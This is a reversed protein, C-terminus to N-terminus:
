TTPSRDRSRAARQTVLAIVEDRQAHTTLLLLDGERAWDLAARVAELESDYRALAEAPAGCRRLEAEIMEPIVGPERGRRYIDMEKIFVRDPRMAWAARAFERIADDDRDGAQGIVLARRRAPLGSAMRSLAALGHPNHAFDVLATVGGLDWLNSRGPNSAPNSQFQLLGGRIAVPSLGLAMAVGIAGLANELNHRAAGGFAIPIEAATAIERRTAGRAFVLAGDELLCADGGRERHAAVLSDGPDLTFWTVPQSLRVGRERLLPDGANLVVRGEPGVAKAVALKVDALSPLDFIGFEGLHDNAVNTVLAAQARPLALGRRLIGGRAVELIAIEVRRDRLVTRAGNPGSYDGSAVVEDGVTVHDTSTVGAVLGAAKAIAGLLRVTTTKGNTGTVLAAPVDHLEAWPLRELV